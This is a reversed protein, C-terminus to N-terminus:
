SAAHTPPASVERWGLRVSIERAADVVLAAIHNRRGDERQFRVTPGSVNVSAIARGTADFVPAAISSVGDAVLGDSESYGQARERRLTERLADWSAPTRDTYQGLPYNEYLGRM